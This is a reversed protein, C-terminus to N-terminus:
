RPLAGLNHGYAQFAGWGAPSRHRARTIRGLKYQLGVVVSKNEGHIHHRIVSKGYCKGASLAAEGGVAVALALKNNAGAQATHTHKKKRHQTQTSYGRCPCPCAM